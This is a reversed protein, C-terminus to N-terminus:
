CRNYYLSYDIPVDSSAVTYGDKTGGIVSPMVSEADKIEKLAKKSTMLEYTIHEPISGKRKHLEYRVISAHISNISDIFEKQVIIQSQIFQSAIKIAREIVRKGEESLNNITSNLGQNSDPNALRVLESENIFLTLDQITSNLM